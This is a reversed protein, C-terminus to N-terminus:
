LDHQTGVTNTAETIRGARVVVDDDALVAVGAELCQLQDLWVRFVVEGLGDTRARRLAQAAGALLNNSAREVNLRHELRPPVRGKIPRNHGFDEAWDWTVPAQSNGLARRRRRCGFAHIMPDFFYHGAM